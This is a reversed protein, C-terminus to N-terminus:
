VFDHKVLSHIDTLNINFISKPNLFIPPFNQTANIYINM